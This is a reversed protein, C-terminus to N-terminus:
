LSRCKVAAEEELIHYARRCSAAEEEVVGVEQRCSAEEVVEAAAHLSLVAVEM